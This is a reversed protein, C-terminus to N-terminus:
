HTGTAAGMITGIEAPTLTRAFFRFDDIGGKWTNADYNGAGIQFPYGAATITTTLVNGNNGSHSIEKGDIYIKISALTGGEPYTVAVHHWNGDTINEPTVAITFNGTTEVRLAPLGSAGASSLKCTFRSYLGTGYTALTNDDYFKNSEGTPTKVWATFSRAESGAIGGYVSQDIQLANTYAELHYAMGDGRPEYATVGSETQTLNLHRGNGSVDEQQGQSADNFIFHLDASTDPTALDKLRKIEFTKSESSNDAFIVKFSIQTKNGIALGLKVVDTMFSESKFKGQFVSFEKLTDPVSSSESIVVVMLPKISAIMNLEAVQGKAYSETVFPDYALSELEESTYAKGTIPNAHFLSLEAREVLELQDVSNEKDCSILMGFLIALLSIKCLVLKRMIMLKNPNFKIRKYIMDQKFMINIYM